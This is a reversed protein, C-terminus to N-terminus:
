RCPMAPSRCAIHLNARVGVASAGWPRYPCRWILIGYSCSRFSLYLRKSSITHSILLTGPSNGLLIEQRNVPGTDCSTCRVDTDLYTDEVDFTHIVTLSWAELCVSFFM